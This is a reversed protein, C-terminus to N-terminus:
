NISCVVTTKTGSGVLGTCIVKLIAHSMSSTFIHQIFALDPISVLVVSSTYVLM